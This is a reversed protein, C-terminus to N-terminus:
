GSDKLSKLLSRLKEADPAAPALTLYTELHRAARRNDGRNRYIIALTRHVERLQGKGLDVATLLEKEANEFLGLNALSQGLLYHGVASTNDRAVAKRFFPVSEGFRRMYLNALGRNMLAAFSEPDIRLAERFAEDARAFQRLRLYQVGLENHAQMFQPHLEIAEKFQVIAGEHDRKASLAVGAEYLDRAKKPIAMLEADIVAPRAEPNPKLTLRIVLTVTLADSGRFVRIDVTQSYPEFDREKDIAIIYSGTPLGRFAFNGTGNTTALRDGRTMTSLRVRVPNEAPRGSPGLVTGVIANNGGLSTQSQTDPITNVQGSFAIHSTLVVLGIMVLRTTKHEIGYMSLVDSIVAFEVSRDNTM